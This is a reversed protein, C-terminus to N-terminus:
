SEGIEIRATEMWKDLANKSFIYDEGIKIFPIGSDKNDILEKLKWDTIGLYQSATNLNYTDKTENIIKSNEVNSINYIGQGINSLGASVSIGNNKMGNAIIISSIIISIGLFVIAGSLTKEKFM